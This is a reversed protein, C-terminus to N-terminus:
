IVKEKSYADQTPIMNQQPAPNQNPPPQNPLDGPRMIGHNKPYEWIVRCM